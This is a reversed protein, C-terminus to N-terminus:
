ASRKRPFRLEVGVGFRGHVPAVRMVTGIGDVAFAPRLAPVVVEARGVIAISPHPVYALALGIPIALWPARVPINEHIGVGQVRIAGAEIGACPLVDLEPPGFRPCARAIAYTIQALAAVRDPAQLRLRRPLVQAATLEVRFRPHLLSASLSLEATVVRLAGYGVSGAMAVAGRLQPRARIPKAIV